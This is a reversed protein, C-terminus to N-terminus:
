QSTGEGKESAWPVKRQMHLKPPRRSGLFSFYTAEMDRKGLCSEAGRQEKDQLIQGWSVSDLQEAQPGAIEQRLSAETFVWLMCNTSSGPQHVRPATPLTTSQSLGHVSCSRKWMGQWTCRKWTATGSDYGNYYVPLRTLLNNERFETLWEALWNFGFLPLEHSSWDM